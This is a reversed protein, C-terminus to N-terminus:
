FHNWETSAFRCPARKAVTLSRNVNKVKLVKSVFWYM